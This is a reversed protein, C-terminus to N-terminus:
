GEGAESQCDICVFNEDVDGSGWWWGCVACSETGVDSLCGDIDEEPVEYKDAIVALSDCTGEVAEAIAEWDPEAM